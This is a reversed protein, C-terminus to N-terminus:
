HAAKFEAPGKELLHFANNLLRYFYAPNSLQKHSVGQVLLKTCAFEQLALWFGSIFDSDEIHRGSHLILENKYSRLLNAFWRPDDLLEPRAVYCLFECIDRQPLHTQALEWDYACLRAPTSATKLCVNRPTLDGHILTLPMKSILARRETTLDMTNKLLKARKATFVDPFSATCYRLLERNFELFSANNIADFSEFYKEGSNVSSWNGLFKVLVQEVGRLVSDVEDYSWQDLDNITELHKVQDLQEMVVVFINKEEDIWTKYIEPLVPELVSQFNKYLAPERLHCQDLIFPSVGGMKTALVSDFKQWVKERAARIESGTIKSKIVFRSERLEGEFKWTVCVLIHGTIRDESSKTLSSIIGQSSGLAERKISLIAIEQPMVTRGRYRLYGMCVDAFFTENLQDGRLGISEM